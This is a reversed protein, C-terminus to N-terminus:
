KLSLVTSIDRVPEIFFWIYICYFHIIYFERKQIFEFVFSNRFVLFYPQDSFIIFNISFFGFVRHINPLVNYHSNELLGGGGLCLIFFLCGCM